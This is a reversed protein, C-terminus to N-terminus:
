CGSMKLHHYKDHREITGILFKSSEHIESPNKPQNTRHSYINCIDLLQRLKRQETNSIDAKEKGFLAKSIDGTHAATAFDVNVRFKVYEEIIRRMTNPMNLADDDSISAGDMKRFEDVKQYLRMYPTLLKEKNVPHINSIGGHKQIEFLSIKEGKRGYALNCFDDWSHTLVFIQATEQDLMSCILNTIYFKYNGDLSSIPDDIVILKIADKLKGSKDIHMEYCFYILSLLNREGDSIDEVKISPGDTHTITYVGGSLSLNFDINLDKLIANLFGAFDALDSKQALLHKNELELKIQQERLEIIQADAAEIEDINETITNNNKIEFGIAGKVLTELRNIKENIDKTSQAKADELAEMADGINKIANPLMNSDITHTIGMDKIKKDIDENIFILIQEMSVSVDDFKVKGDTLSLVQVYTDRQDVLLKAVEYLELLSKKLTELIENAKHKENNLYADVRKRIEDIDIDAGCFECRKKGKHIGIGGQLWNVVEYEPVDIYEYKTGFISALDGLKNDDIEPMKPFTILNVQESEASFDASGTIANYDENPFNKDAYEYDKVWLYIKEQVTKNDPKNNIKRNKGKRRKVIEKILQDTQKTLNEKIVNHEDISKTLEAVKKKNVDVKNEIDVDIAGFNSVVGRIGSRDELLLTSEVYESNFFRASDKGNIELYAKKIGHSLASKGAGNCGFIINTQNFIATKLNSSTKWSKYIHNEINKVYLAQSM